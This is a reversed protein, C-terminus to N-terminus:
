LVSNDGVIRGGGETFDGTLGHYGCNMGGWGM